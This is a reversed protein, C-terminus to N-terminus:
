GPGAGSDTQGTGSGGGADSGEADTAGFEPATETPVAQNPGTSGMVGESGGGTNGDTSGGGGPAGGPAGMNATGVWGLLDEFGNNYVVSNPAEGVVDFYVKGTSTAGQGLPAGSLSQPTVVPLVRYNQMNEARANFFTPAPVVTGRVANVTVTAEYLRGGLPFAVPDASPMLGDVTYGIETAFDELTEQVGFDKINNIASAPAVAGVSFLVAAAAVAGAARKM